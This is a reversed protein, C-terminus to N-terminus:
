RRRSVLVAPDIELRVPREVVATAGAQVVQDVYVGGHLEGAFLRPVPELEVRWYYPIGAAAYLYPKTRRDTIRTSPSAIEVVLLVDRAEVTAGATQAAAEDVLVIDPILLGDPVLVNGGDFVEVPAGAADAAAELLQGLRRAARQHPYTPAPAMMLTGGVLEIRHRRDEPLQLVDEVTWPGSHREYAVSM